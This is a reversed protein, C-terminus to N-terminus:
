MTIIETMLRSWFVLLYFEGLKDCSVFTVLLLLLAIYFHAAIFPVM